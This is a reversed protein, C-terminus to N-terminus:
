GKIVDKLTREEDEGVGDGGLINEFVYMVERADVNRGGSRRSSNGRLMTQEVGNPSNWEM